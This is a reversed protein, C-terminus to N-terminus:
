YFKIETTIEFKARNYDEDNAGSDQYRYTPSITVTSAESKYCTHTCYLWIYHLCYVLINRVIM